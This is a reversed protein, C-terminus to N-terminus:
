DTRQLAMNKNERDKKIKQKIKEYFGLEEPDESGLGYGMKVAIYIKHQRQSSLSM